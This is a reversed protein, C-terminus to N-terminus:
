LLEGIKHIDIEMVATPQYIEFAELFEPHIEGLEGIVKGNVAIAACRGEIFYKKRTALYEANINILRLIKQAVSKIESFGATSHATACALCTREGERVIVRGIEFIKQPYERHTNKSLFVILNPILSARLANLDDSVPNLISVYNEIGFMELIKKSTLTLTMIEQYGCGVMIREIVECVKTEHLLEGITFTELNKESIKDYGFGIAVDEVIDIPSMIDVRFRGVSVKFQNETVEVDHRMKELSISIEEKTLPVGLYDLIYNRDVHMTQPTLDPFKRAQPKYLITCDYIKGGREALATAIINLVNEVSIPDTGTVDILIDKTDETLETLESNIIPPMSLVNENRDVILPFKEFERIIWGYEIGKPHKLLIEELTLENELGLPVFSHKQPDAAIYRLPPSIKSFDHLGIAVKKRKRGYTMHLKEQADMLSKITYEDISLNRVLACAIYPRIHQLETDVEVVINSNLVEYKPLGLEIEFFGKAARAIGEVTYLDPRNPFFEIFIEDKEFGKFDAGLMPIERIFREISVEPLLKELEARYIRIVPM